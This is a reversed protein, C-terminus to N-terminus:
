IPTDLYDPVVIVGAVIDAIANDVTERMEQTLLRRNYSDVAYSIAGEALGVEQWGGPLDAGLDFVDEVVADVRKVMSTLMNGPHQANQNSDTGIALIGADAAAQLAGLGTAGAVPYIV